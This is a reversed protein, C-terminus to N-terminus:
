FRIWPFVCKLCYKIVKWFEGDVLIIHEVDVSSWAFYHDHVRPLLSAMWCESNVLFFLCNLGLIPDGVLDKYSFKSTQMHGICFMARLAIKHEMISKLTLYDTTFRIIASRILERGDAFDTMLNLAWCYWHIFVTVKKLKEISEICRFTM